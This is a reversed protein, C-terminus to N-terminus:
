INSFFRYLIIIGSIVGVLFLLIANIWGGQLDLFEKPTTKYKILLALVGVIILFIGLVLSKM